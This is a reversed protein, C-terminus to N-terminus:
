MSSRNVRAANIAMMGAETKAAVPRISRAQCASRSYRVAMAQTQMGTKSNTAM